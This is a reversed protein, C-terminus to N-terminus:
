LVLSVDGFTFRRTEGSALRLLLAGGDDLGAFAGEVPGAGANVSLREGLRGARELWAARVPAFGQEWRLQWDHMAEALFALMELPSPASQISPYQASLSTAPRDLGQPVSALNLGVGIVAIFEARTSTSEVLIGGMKADGVLIDNPWKLRPSLNPAVRKLADIVAVGTVLSLEAARAVTCNPALVLSAQLNGADSMWARGARGKGATQRDAIVWLPLAAGNLALRMAEANTSACEALQVLGAGEPLTGGPM